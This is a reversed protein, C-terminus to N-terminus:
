DTDGFTTLKCTVKTLICKILSVYPTSFHMCTSDWFGCSEKKHARVMAIKIIYEMEKNLDGNKLSKTHINAKNKNTLTKVRKIKEKYRLDM